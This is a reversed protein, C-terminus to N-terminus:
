KNEEKNYVVTTSENGNDTISIINQTCIDFINLDKEDIESERSNDWNLIETRKDYFCYRKELEELPLEHRDWEIDKTPDLQAFELSESIFSHDSFYQEPYDPFETLVYFCAGSRKYTIRLKNWTQHTYRYVDSNTPWCWWYERGVEIHPQYKDRGYLDVLTTSFSTKKYKM